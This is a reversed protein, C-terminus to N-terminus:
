SALYKRVKLLFCQHFWNLFLTRTQAKKYLWFVPVQHKHKEKLAWPNALKHILSIKIMFKVVNACVISNNTYQVNQLVHTQRTKFFISKQPHLIALLFPYRHNSSVCLWQIVYQLLLFIFSTFGSFKIGAFFSIIKPFPKNLFHWFLLLLSKQWILPPLCAGLHWLSYCKPAERTAQHFVIGEQRLDQHKGRKRVILDGKYCKM